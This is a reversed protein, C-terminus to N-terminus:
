GVSILGSSFERTERIDPLWHSPLGRTLGTSDISSMELEFPARNSAAEQRSLLPAINFYLASTRPRSKSPAFRNSRSSSVTSHRSAGQSGPIGGQSKLRDMGM